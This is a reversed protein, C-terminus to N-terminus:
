WRPEISIGVAFQLSGHELAVPPAALETACSMSQLDMVNPKAASSTSVLFFVQDGHTGIAVGMNMSAM